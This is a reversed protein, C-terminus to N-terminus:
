RGFVCRILAVVSHAQCYATISSFFKMFTRGPPGPDAEGRGNASMAVQCTAM